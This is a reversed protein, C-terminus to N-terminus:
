SKGGYLRDLHAGAEAFTMKDANQIGRRSLARVQKMTALGMGRRMIITGILKSCEARSLREVDTREFGSKELAAMQPETPAKGRGEWGRERSPTTMAGDFLDEEALIYKALAMVKQRAARLSDLEAQAERNEARAERARRAAELAEVVDLDGGMMAASAASIDEDPYKGGLVDAPSILKHRGCNGMFDLVKLAPKGSAATDPKMSVSRPVARSSGM